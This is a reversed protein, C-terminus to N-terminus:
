TAMTISTMDLAAAIDAVTARTRLRRRVKMISAPRNFAIAGTVNDGRTYLALFRLAEVPGNLVMLEDEAAPAGVIQIKHDYQDSWVYPVPDYPKREGAGLLAAAAAQGQTVANEWHEVRVSGLRPHDWRAVDGAAVVRSASAHCFRDCIVGDDVVLGSGALWNTAPRIGLGVVVTDAEIASGDALRVLAVRGNGELGEVPVGCRLKVGEDAHVQALLSGMAPGIAGALPAQEAEVITVEAGLRRSTAAVEAGIFGGGVVVVSGSASLAQRIALADDLTRLTFVGDFSPGPLTRPTGGTAVVLGDFGLREGSALEVAREELDLGVARAGLLLDVNLDDQWQAHRLEVVEQGALVSKSLPPRDYPTREEEGVVVLKGDFGLRRLEDVAAVAAVSAGAVVIRRM